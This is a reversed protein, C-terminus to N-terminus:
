YVRRFLQKWFAVLNDWPCHTTAYTRHCDIWLERGCVAFSCTGYTSTKTRMEILAGRSVSRLNRRSPLKSVVKCMEVLHQPALQHLCKYNLICLKYEIREAIPLWNLQDRVVDSIHDYKRWRSIVHAAAYLISQLPRLHKVHVLSFVSVWLWTRYISSM